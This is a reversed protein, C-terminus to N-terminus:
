MYLRKPSPNLPPMEGGSPDMFNPIMIKEGKFDLEETRPKQYMKKM